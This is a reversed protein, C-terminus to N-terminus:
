QPPAKDALEKAASAIQPNSDNSYQKLMDAHQKPDFTPDKALSKLYNATEQPSDMHSAMFEPTSQATQVSTQGRVPGGTKQTFKLPENSKGCGVALAACGAVFVFVTKRV